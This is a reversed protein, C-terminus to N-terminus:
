GHQGVKSWKIYDDDTMGLGKAIERQTGDLQGTVQTVVPPPRQAGGTGSFGTSAAAAELAEVEKLKAAQEGRHQILKDVNQGRVYAVLDDWSKASNMVSKDPVQALVTKIEDGFLEFEEKYRMRANAEATDASGTMLPKLRADLNRDLREGMQENMVGIAKLPDDEYLKAIEERDLVRPADAALAAAATTTAAPQVALQAKLANFQDKLEMRGKESAKVADELGQMTTVVDAVSKGRLQEPVNDGEIKIEELPKGAAEAAALQKSVEDLDVAAAPHVGQDPVPGTM